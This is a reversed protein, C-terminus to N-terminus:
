AALRRATRLHACTPSVLRSACLDATVQAYAFVDEAKCSLEDLTSAIAGEVVAVYAQHLTTWELEQSSIACSPRLSSVPHRVPPSPVAARALRRVGARREARGRREM